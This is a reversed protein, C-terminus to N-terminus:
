KGGVSKQSQGHGFDFSSQPEGSFADVQKQLITQAFTELGV